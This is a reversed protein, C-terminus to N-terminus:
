DSSERSSIHAPSLTENGFFLIHFSFFFFLLKLNHFRAAAMRVLPSLIVDGTAIMYVQYSTIQYHKVEPTHKGFVCLRLKIILFVKSLELNLSM